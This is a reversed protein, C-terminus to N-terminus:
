NSVHLSLCVSTGIGPVRDTPTRRSDPAAAVIAFGMLTWGHAEAVLRTRRPRLENGLADRWMSARDIASLGELYDDPMLGGRYAAQRARIHVSGLHDADRPEPRRIV